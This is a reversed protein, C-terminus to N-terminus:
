EKVNAPQSNLQSRAYTVKVPKGETDKGAYSVRDAKPEWEWTRSLNIGSFVFNFTYRIAEIQGFSDLGYTKALKEVIPPRQQAWSTAPLILLMSVALLRIVNLRSVNTM